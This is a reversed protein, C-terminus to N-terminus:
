CSEKKDIKPCNCKKNWPNIRSIHCFGSYLFKKAIPFKKNWPNVRSINFFKQLNKCTFFNNAIFVNKRIKKKKKKKKMIIARPLEM